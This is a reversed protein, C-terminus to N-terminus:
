AKAGKEKAPKSFLRRYLADNRRQDAIIDTVSRMRPGASEAAKVAAAQAAAEAVKPDKKASAKRPM